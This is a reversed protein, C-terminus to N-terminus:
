YVSYFRGTSVGCLSLAKLTMQKRVQLLYYLKKNEVNEQTTDLRIYRLHHVGQTQDCLEVFLMKVWGASWFLFM